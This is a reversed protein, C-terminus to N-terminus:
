VGEISKSTLNTVDVFVTYVESGFVEKPTRISVKLKKSPM